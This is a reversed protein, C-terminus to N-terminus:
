TKNYSHQTRGYVQIIRKVYNQTEKYPPIGNYRKVTQEGANYSALVLKVNGQHRKLLWAVYRIGGTINQQADWADSIAFRKATSPMLQMLGIAGKPSLAKINFNSEQQIIALILRPEINYLPAITNVIKVIKQCNESCKKTQWYPTPLRTCITKKSTLQSDLRSLMQQAYQDGSKAAVKFWRVALAENKDTGRANLIMWALNVQADSHGNIAAKCYWYIAQKQDKELGEGHEYALALDFQSNVQGQKALNKITEIETQFESLIQAM